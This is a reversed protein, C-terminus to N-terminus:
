RRSAKSAHTKKAVATGDSARLRMTEVARKVTDSVRYVREGDDDLSEDLLGVSILFLARYTLENPSLTALLEGEATLTRTPNVLDRHHLSQDPMRSVLLVIHQNDLGAMRLREIPGASRYKQLTITSVTSTKASIIPDSIEAAEELFQDLSLHNVDSIPYFITEIQALNRLWSQRARNDATEQLLAYATPIMGRFRRTLDRRLRVIEDELSCGVFVTNYRLMIGTLFATMQPSAIYTRDYEDTSLVIESGITSGHLKVFFMGAAPATNLIVGLRPDLGTASVREVHNWQNLGHEILEDYNTTLIGAWPALALNKMRERMRKQQADKAQDLRHLGFNRRIADDMDAPPLAERLISAALAYNGHELATKCSDLSPNESHLSERAISLINELLGLWGPMDCVRSFGAGVFAVCQGRTMRQRLQVTILPM